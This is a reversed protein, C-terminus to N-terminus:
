SVSELACAFHSTCLIGELGTLSAIIFLEGLLCEDTSSINPRTFEMLILPCLCLDSLSLPLDSRLTLPLTYTQHM